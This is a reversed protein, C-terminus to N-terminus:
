ITFSLCRPLEKLLVPSGTMVKKEPSLLAKSMERVAQSISFVQGVGKMKEVQLTLNDIGNMIAPDKIDGSIM